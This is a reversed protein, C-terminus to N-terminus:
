EQIDNLECYEAWDMGLTQAVQTHAELRMAKLQEPNEAVLQLALEWPEIGQDEAEDEFAWQTQQKQEEPSLDKIEEQLGPNTTIYKALAAENFDLADM